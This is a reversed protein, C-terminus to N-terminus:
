DEPFFFHVTEDGKRHLILIFFLLQNKTRHNKCILMFSESQLFSNTTHTCQVIKDESSLKPM